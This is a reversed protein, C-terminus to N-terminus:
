DKVDEVLDVLKEITEEDVPRVTRNGVDHTILGLEALRPFHSHHCLLDLTEFDADARGERSLYTVLDDCDVNREPQTALYELILRRNEHALAEFVADIPVDADRGNQHDDAPGM